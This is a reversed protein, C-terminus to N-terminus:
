SEYIILKCNILYIKHHKPQSESICDYKSPMLQWFKM